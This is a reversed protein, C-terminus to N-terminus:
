KSAGGHERDARAYVVKGDVITHTVVADMVKAPALAFVDKSLVVIDALQGPALRGKREEDFSAYAADSTYAALVDALPMKEGPYWGGPPTGEPTTRNLAMNIGFRPDVTVVPWDSGFAVRAGSKRLTGYIWGRSAREDGINATWVNIQNPNPNAHFPQMSAIVGLAKFRPIDATDTTEIHEIRHRRDRPGNISAAHEFADLAQRIARDGIAHIMVQWGRKDMMTVIDRIQADTFNATGTGPANSYPALMAATHSEIVGDGMLKIAGTRFFPDNGYKARLADLADADAATLTADVSVASYVRINLDGARRLEDYLAFEEADGHANQISTLGVEHAAAIANRLARMKQDKTVEPLHSSVLSKASEKLVGTPEGTKPDKVIVGNKPNPTKRTIGALALARSNVWSTHGDYATMYAPRDPVIADLIERTPLGGVFPEYYWGRGIVWPSTPNSAAFAAIKAKIEDLTTADLLNVRELGLGGSIFHLHADNFGPLISGGNADIEVTHSQRLRRLERSGGVRAITNGRVAVAQADSPQGDPGLVRGNYVILDVPGGGDDRKAGVILGAVLTLTVVAVVIFTTLRTAM